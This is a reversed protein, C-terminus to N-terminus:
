FHTERNMSGASSLIAANVQNSQFTRSLAEVSLYISSRGNAILQHEKVQGVVLYSFVVEMEMATKRGWSYLYVSVNKRLNDILVM